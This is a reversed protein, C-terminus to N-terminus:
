VDTVTVNFTETMYPFNEVRFHFVGEAMSSWELIGDDVAEAGGAYHVTTGAPIGTVTFTADVAITLPPVIFGFLPRLIYESGDYYHMDDKVDPDVLDVAEGVGPKLMLDYDPCYGTSTIEGTAINRVAFTVIM